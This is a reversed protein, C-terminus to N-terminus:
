VVSEPMDPLPPVIVVDPNLDVVVVPTDYKFITGDFSYGQPMTVICREVIDTKELEKNVAMGLETNGQFRELTLPINSNISDLIVQPDRNWFKHYCENQTIAYHRAAKTQIIALERNYQTPTLSEIM